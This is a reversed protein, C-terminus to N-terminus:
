WELGMRIVMSVYKAMEFNVVLGHVEGSIAFSAHRIQPRSEFAAASKVLPFGHSSWQFITIERFITIEHFEYSINMSKVM